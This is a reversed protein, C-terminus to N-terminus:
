RPLRTSLYAKRVHCPLGYRRVRKKAAAIKEQRAKEQSAKKARKQQRKKLEAKSVMEGTVDDLQLKAVNQAVEEAM